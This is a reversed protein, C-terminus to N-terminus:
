QLQKVPSLGPLGREQLIPHKWRRNVVTCLCIQKKRVCMHVRVCVRVHVCACVCVCVCMHTHMCVYVCTCACVCVCACPMEQEDMEMRQSLGEECGCLEWVSWWGGAGPPPPWSWEISGPSKGSAEVVTGSRRLGGGGQLGVVWLEQEGAAPQM